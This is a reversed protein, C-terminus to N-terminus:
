RGDRRCDGLRQRGAAAGLIRWDRPGELPRAGTTVDLGTLLEDGAVVVLGNSVAAPKTTALDVAWRMTGRDLDIAVFRGSKLPM